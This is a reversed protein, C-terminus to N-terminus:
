DSSARQYPVDHLTLGQVYLGSAKPVWLPRAPHNAGMVRRLAYWAEVLSASDITLSSPLVAVAEVTYEQKDDSHTLALGGLQQDNDRLHQLPEPDLKFTLAYHNPAEVPLAQLKAQMGIAIQRSTVQALAHSFNNLRQAVTPEHQLQNDHGVQPLMIYNRSRLRVNRSGPLLFSNLAGQLEASPTYGLYVQSYHREFPQHSSTPDIEM